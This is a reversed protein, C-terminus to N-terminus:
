KLHMESMFKNRALLFKNVIENMKYELPTASQFLINGLLPVKSLVTGLGLNSFLGKAKQKKTFRLKKSRCEACKSLM